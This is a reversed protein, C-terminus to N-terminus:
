AEGPLLRARDGEVVLRGEVAAIVVEPLLRHEVALVRAALSAPTDGPEVPVTRRAVIPGRDYEEDVLHVTPGSVTEGAELVARHVHHGYMGKGGYKPLLAPHINLIRNRWRAVVQAPVRKLYGALVIWEIDHDELVAVIEGADDPDVTRVGVGRSRARELATADPRDSVVVAIEADPRGELAEFLAELNSGTGSAFVAIRTPNSM